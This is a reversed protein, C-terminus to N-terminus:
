DARGLVFQMRAHEASPTKAEDLWACQALPELGARSCLVLFEDPSYLRWEFEDGSSDEYELSVRQRRGNWSRRTRVRRGGREASEEAPLSAIHERNYIDFIARGGPRLLDHVQQLIDANTGDDFYGFSHWLNLVGDFTRGISRIERMDCVEFSAGPCNARATRVAEENLDVGFVTYGRDSLTEAHRGPGCCLDLLHPYEAQPLQREVFSIEAITLADPISDLFIEYWAQSYLNPM